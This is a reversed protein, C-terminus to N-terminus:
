LHERKRSLYFVAQGSFVVDGREVALACTLILTLPAPQRSDSM